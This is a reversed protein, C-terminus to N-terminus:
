AQAALVVDLPVQPPTREDTQQFLWRRSSRSRYGSFLEPALYLTEGTGFSHHALGLGQQQSRGRGFHLEARLGDRYYLKAFRAEGSSSRCLLQVNSGVRLKCPSSVPGDLGGVLAEPVM